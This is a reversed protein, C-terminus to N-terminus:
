LLKCLAIGFLQGGINGRSCFVYLKFCLSATKRNEAIRGHGEGEGM